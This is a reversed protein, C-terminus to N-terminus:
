KPVYNIKKAVGTWVTVQKALWADFEVPTLNWPTVGIRDLGKKINDKQAITQMAENLRHLTSQPTGATTVIGYASPVEFDKFGQEAVTPTDPLYTARVPSAVGIVRVGGSKIQPIAPPAAVFSFQVEGTVVALLAPGGGKYPIHVMDLGTAFNLLEGGLHLSGGTGSSAFNLRKPHQAKAYAVLEPVTNVPLKPNVVVVIDSRGITGVAAFDKLTDYPMDKKTAPNIFHSGTTILLQYGDPAARAVHNGGITANGGPKYDVIFPQGLLAQFEQSYLRAILDTPGGPSFACIITVPRTPYEQASAMSSALGALLLILKSFVNM